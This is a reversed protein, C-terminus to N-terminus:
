IVSQPRVGSERHAVVVRPPSDAGSRRSSTLLQDRFQLLAVALITEARNVCSRCVDVGDM